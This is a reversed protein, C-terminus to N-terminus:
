CCGTYARRPRRDRICTTASCSTCGNGGTQAGGGTQRWLTTHRFTPAVYIIARPFFNKPIEERRLIGQLLALGLAFFGSNEASNGTGGHRREPAGCFVSVSGAAPGEAVGADGEAGGSSRGFREKYRPKDTPLKDGIVLCDPDRRRMYPDLYNAAIGNKTRCV